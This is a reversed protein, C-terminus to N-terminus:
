CTGAIILARPGDQKATIGNVTAQVCYSTATARVITTDRLTRDYHSRLYTATMGTYGSKDAKYKAIDPQVSRVLAEADSQRQDFVSRAPPRTVRAPTGFASLLEDIHFSTTGRVILARFRRVNGSGDVWVVAPLGHRLQQRSQMPALLAAGPLGVRIAHKTTTAGGVPATGLAPGLRSGLRLAVAPDFLPAATAGDERVWTSGNPLHRLTEGKLFVTLLPSAGIVASFHKGNATFVFTSLRRRGDIKGNGAVSVTGGTGTIKMHVVFLASQQATRVPAALAESACLAAALVLLPLVLRRM